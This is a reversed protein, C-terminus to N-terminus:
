LYQTMLGSNNSVTPYFLISVREVLYEIMGNWKQSFIDWSGFVNKPAVEITYKFKMDQQLRNLLEICFGTYVVEGSKTFQRNVFPPQQIYLTFLDFHSVIETKSAIPQTFM